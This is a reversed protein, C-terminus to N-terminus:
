LQYRGQFFQRISRWWQTLLPEPSFHIKVVATRGPLIGPHLNDSQIHARFLFFPEAAKIGKEDEGAVAIGGGALLSLAESPLYEQSYPALQYHRITLDTSADGKLRVILASASPKQQFMRSAEEQSVVATIVPAAVSSISGLEEGQPVWSGTLKKLDNSIWIGSEPAVMSLEYLKRELEKVHKESAELHANIPFSDVDGQARAQMLMARAKQTEAQVSILELELEPNSLTLLLQGKEIYEGSNINLTRIVGSSATVVPKQVESQVVGPVVINSPLPIFAAFLVPIGAGILWARMIHQRRNGQPEQAMSTLSKLLPMGWWVMGLFIALALGINPYEDGVFLLIGSLVVLRYCWSLIHYTLLFISFPEDYRVPLRYITKEFWQRFMVKSRTGLNPEELLDSLIYYGDFRMLPNLNFLLTTVSAVFMINYLLENVIGPPSNAWVIAALGALWLEVLMGAAGVLVRQWKSGFQWTSTADVYPVPAFLLLMVGAHPVSGGFHKCVVGHGLEHLAKVIFIAIYLLFLNDFALLNGSQQLLQSPKGMVAELSFVFTILWVLIGLKGMIYPYLPKLSELMPDPNFLRFRLFLFNIWRSRLEKKKQKEASELMNSAPIPVAFVLVGSSYMQTLLQIVDQQSPVLDPQKHLQNQWVEDLTRKLNLSRIFRYTAVPLRFYSQSAPDFLVYWFEGRYCQKSVEITPSLEARSNAFRFWNDSFLDM